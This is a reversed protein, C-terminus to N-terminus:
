GLEVEREGRGGADAAIQQAILQVVAGNGLEGLAILQDEDAAAPQVGELARGPPAAADELPQLQDLALPRKLQARLLM